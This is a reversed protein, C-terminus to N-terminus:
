KNAKRAKNVAGKFASYGVAGRVLQNGVIFAPTGTIGVKKAISRNDAIINEVEPSKAKEKVADVDIGLESVIAYIQADNKPSKKSMQKYLEFVKDPAILSVAVSIKGKTISKEGLIPLDKLVVRVNKDEKVLKEIDPIAKRCYGCNYDHFIAFTVDGKPNGAIVTSKAIQPAVQKVNKSAKRGDKARQAAQAKKIGDLIVEPNKEIYKAVLTGITDTDISSAVTDSKKDLYLVTLASSTVMALVFLVLVLFRMGM